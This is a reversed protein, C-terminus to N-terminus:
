QARDFDEDSISYTCIDNLCSSDFLYINNIPQLNIESNIFVLSKIDDFVVIIKPYNSIYPNYEVNGEKTISEGPTLIINHDLTENYNYFNVNIMHSSNNKLMYQKDELGTSTCSTLIVISIIIFYTKM